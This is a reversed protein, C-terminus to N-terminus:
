TPRSVSGQNEKIYCSVPDGGDANYTAFDQFNRDSTRWVAVAGKGGAVAMRSDVKSSTKPTLIPTATSLTLKNGSSTVTVGSLSNQFPFYELVGNADTATASYKSGDWKLTITSAKGPEKNAFSPVKFYDNLRKKLDRYYQMFKTANHAHASIMQMADDVGAKIGILGNAQVFANGAVTEWVLVQTVLWKDSDDSRAAYPGSANWQFGLALITGITEQNGTTLDMWTYGMGDGSEKEHELCYGAVHKGGYKM